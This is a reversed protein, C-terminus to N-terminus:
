FMAISIHTHCLQAIVEHIYHRSYLTRAHLRWMTLKINLPLCFFEAYVWLYNLILLWIITFFPNAFILLSFGVFIHGHYRFVSSNKGNRKGCCLCYVIDRHSWKLYKRVASINTATNNRTPVYLVSVPLKRTETSLVQHKCNIANIQTLQLQRQTPVNALLIATLAIM